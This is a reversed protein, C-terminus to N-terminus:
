IAKLFNEANTELLIGPTYGIIKQREVFSSFSNALIAGRFPSSGSVWHNVAVQEVLQAIPSSLLFNLVCM